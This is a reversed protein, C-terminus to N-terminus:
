AEEEKKALGEGREFRAFRRVDITGGAEKEREKLVAEVSKDPDKIFPQELLCVDKFFKELKGQAIRDQIQAPKGENAAQTRYIALEGETVSAPIDGRRVYEPKAAAIQMAVDKLALRFAETGAVAESSAAAEVLVGIRGGLHIYAEVRGAGPVAFRAYRRLAMNEGIKAILNTLREGVTLGEKLTLQLVEEGGGSAEPPNGCAVAEAAEATFAQFEDNRAVFDTECNV